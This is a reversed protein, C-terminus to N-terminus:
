CSNRRLGKKEESLYNIQRRLKQIEDDKKATETQLKNKLLLLGSKYRDLEVNNKNNNQSQSKKLKNNEDLLQTVKMKWKKESNEWDESQAQLDSKLNQIAKFAKANDEDFMKVQNFYEKLESNAQQAMNVIDEQLKKVTRQLDIVSFDSADIIEPITFFSPGHGPHQRELKPPIISAMSDTKKMLNARKNGIGPRNSKTKSNADILYDIEDLAKDLANGRPTIYDLSDLVADLPDMAKASHSLDPVASRQNTSRGAPSPAVKPTMPENLFEAFPDDDLNSNIGSQLVNFEASLQALSKDLDNFDFEML